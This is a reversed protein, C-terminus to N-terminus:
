IHILLSGWFGKRMQQCTHGYGNLYTGLIEVISETVHMKNRYPLLFVYRNQYLTVYNVIILYLNPLFAKKINRIAFGNHYHVTMLVINRHTGM